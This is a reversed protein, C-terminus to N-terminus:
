AFALPLSEKQKQRQPLTEGYIEYRQNVVPEAHQSISHHCDVVRTRCNQSVQNSPIYQTGSEGDALCLKSGRHLNENHDHDVPAQRVIYM